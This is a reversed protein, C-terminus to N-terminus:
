PRAETATVVRRADAATHAAALDDVYRGLADRANRQAELVNPLSVAGEAYAALFMAAVSDAGALLRVDRAVKADALTREREARAIAADSERRALALEATARDRQAAARGIAGGNQNFLPLPLSIGVTPLSGPEAGTPDGSELGVQISPSPINSARALTLAHESARVNAEAVAIALPVGVPAVGDPPPPALTDALVLRGTDGPLGMVQQLDLLAALAGLSDDAAQNELQGANIRALRVDMESADGADRRLTAMRLLTDADLANRRSLRAHAAAALARTYTTEAEFRALARELAYRDLAAASLAVAGGVRPGRLWPWDLPLDLIAHYRPISKTYTASVSPNPLARAARVDARAAASDTRALVVRPGRALAAAVAAARTVPTQAGLAAPALAGALLLLRM